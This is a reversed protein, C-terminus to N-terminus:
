TKLTEEVSKIQKKKIEKGEKWTAKTHKEKWKEEVKYVANSSIKLKM